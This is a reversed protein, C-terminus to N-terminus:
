EKPFISDPWPEPEGGMATVQGRIVHGYNILALVQGQLVDNRKREAVSRATLYSLWGGVAGIVAIIVPILYNGWEGM